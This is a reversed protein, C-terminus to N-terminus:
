MCMIRATVMHMLMCGDMSGNRDVRENGCVYRTDM